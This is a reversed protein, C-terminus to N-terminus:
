HTCSGRIEESATVIPDLEYTMADSFRIAVIGSPLMVVYNGGHGLMYPAEVVCSATYIGDRWVSHKYYDVYGQWQDKKIAQRVRAPSLLQRGQHVGDNLLLRGVKIAEDVTPYSGWGMIPIGVTGDPEVTHSVALHYVGIPELVDRVVLEWYNAAPGEKEKVYRSMAYSLVFSNTSAYNFDEGPEPPLDPLVAIAALKEATSRSHIFPLIQDGEDAGSIGTNMNLVHSFTVGAWGPHTALEPVYDTILEEFVDDGYKGALYFMSLGLCLTKTVSFVGHRMQDPYPYPGTRTQLQQRYIERDSYIASASVEHEEMNSNFSMKLQGPDSHPLEEWSRVPIRSAIERDYRTILEQRGAITSPRYTVPVLATFDDLTYDDVPSTEQSIQIFVNSIETQKYVFTAIGNRAQGVGNTTLIFPFSARSYGNDGAEQWVRGPSVVINWSSGEREGSYIIGRTVPVLAGNHQFFSVSFAPFLTNDSTEWTVARQTTTMQTQPFTFIGSIEHTPSSAPGVPLFYGNHVKSIAMEGKLQAVTLETRTDGPAQLSPVPGRGPENGRGTNCGGALLLFIASLATFLYEKKMIRKM